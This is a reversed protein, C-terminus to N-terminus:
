LWKRNGRGLSKGHTHGLPQEVARPQAGAVIGLVQGTAQELLRRTFTYNCRLATEALQHATFAAIGPVPTDTLIKQTLGGAGAVTTRLLFEPEDCVSSDL